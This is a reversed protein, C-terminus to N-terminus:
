RTVAVADMAGGILGFHVPDSVDLRWRRGMPGSLGTNLVTIRQQSKAQKGLKRHWPTTWTVGGDDSWSVLISPDTQIPDIGTADGVGVTFDFDARNVRVRNPFGKGPASEIRALIENDVEYM